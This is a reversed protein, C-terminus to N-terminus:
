TLRTKRAQKHMAVYNLALKSASERPAYATCLLQWVRQDMQVCSVGSVAVKGVVRM